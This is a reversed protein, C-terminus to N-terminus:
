REWGAITRTTELLKKQQGNPQDLWLEFRARFADHWGGEYVTLGAQYPFLVDPDSGWGVYRITGPRIRDRSLEQGATKIEAPVGKPGVAPDAGEFIVRLYVRGDSGPNIWATVVYMGPQMGDEVKMRPAGHGLPTDVMLEPAFGQKEVADRAELVARLEEGVERVARETFIRKRLHSQEFVELTVGEAGEVVLYSDLGPQDMYTGVTVRATGADAKARSIRRSGFGYERGLSLLVRTQLVDKSSFDSHFGNSGGAYGGPIDMEPDPTPLGEVPEYGTAPPKERRFAYRVGKIESVDWRPSARLHREILPVDGATLQSLVPAGLAVTESPEPRLFCAAAGLSLLMAFLRRDPRIPM